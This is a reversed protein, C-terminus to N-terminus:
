NALVNTQNSSNITKKQKTTPATNNITFQDNGGCVSRCTYGNQADKSLPTPYVSVTSCRVYWYKYTEWKIKRKKKVWFFFLAKLTSDYPRCNDSVVCFNRKSLTKFCVNLDAEEKKFSGFDNTIGGGKRTKFNKLKM